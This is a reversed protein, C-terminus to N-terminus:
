RCNNNYYEVIEFYHKKKFEKTNIKELLPKCDNFYENVVKKFKDKPIYGFATYFTAVDENEKKLYFTSTKRSSGLGGGQMSFITNGESYLKLFEDIEVYYLKPEKKPNITIYEFKYIKNKKNIFQIGSLKDHTYTIIESQKNQKFLVKSGKTKILGNITKGDKFILTGEKKQAYTFVTLFLFVSLALKYKM